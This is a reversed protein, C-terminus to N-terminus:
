PAAGQEVLDMRRRIRAAVDPQGGQEAWQRQVGLWALLPRRWGKQSATDVAAQVVAPSAQSRRLLVGAAVLRALPDSLQLVHAAAAADTTALALAQQAPPLLAAQMPDLTQGALYAAYAREPGAADTRLAEFRPCDWPMASATQAACQLLELRAMRAPQGTRAIAQRAHQWELTAVRQNGSLYAELARQSAGHSDMQWAPAPPQSSCAALLLCLTAAAAIRRTWPIANATM